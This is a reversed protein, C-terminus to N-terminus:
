EEETIEKIGELSADKEIINGEDTVFAAGVIVNKLTNNQSIDTIKGVFGSEKDEIFIMKNFSDLNM